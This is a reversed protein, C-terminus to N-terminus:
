EQGLTKTAVLKPTTGDVNYLDLKIGLNTTFEGWEGTSTKTDMGVALIHNKDYELLYNSFGPIKLAGLIKPKAPNALSVKFVPDTQRYTIFYASDGLFKVGGLTEGPAINSM